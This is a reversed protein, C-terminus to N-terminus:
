RKGLGIEEVMRCGCYRCFPIETGPKAAVIEETWHQLCRYRVPGAQKAPRKEEMTKVVPLGSLEAGGPSHDDDVSPGQQPVSHRVKGTAM